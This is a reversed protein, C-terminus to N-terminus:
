LRDTCRPDNGPPNYPLGSITGWRVKCTRKTLGILSVKIDSRNRGVWVFNLKYRLSELFLLPVTVGLRRQLPTSHFTLSWGGATGCGSGWGQERGGAERTTGGPGWPPTLNELGLTVGVRTVSVGRRRTPVHRTLYSGYITEKSDHFNIHRFSGRSGRQGLALTDLNWDPFSRPVPHSDM